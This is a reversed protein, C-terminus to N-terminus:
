ALSDLMERLRDIEPQIKDGLQNAKRICVPLETALPKTRYVALVDESEQFRGALAVAGLSALMQKLNGARIALARVRPYETARRADTAWLDALRVFHGLLERHTDRDIEYRQRAAALDRVVPQAATAPRCVQWVKELVTTRSFPKVLLSTIGRSAVSAVTSRDAGGTGGTCVIIPLHTFRPDAHARDIWQLGTLGPMNLDILALKVDPNAELTEWAKAGDDAPLLVYGSQASALIEVMLTRSVPDDDAILIKM